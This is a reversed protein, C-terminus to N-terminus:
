QLWGAYGTETTQRRLWDAFGSAVPRRLWLERVKRMLWCSHNLCHQKAEPEVNRPAVLTTCDDGVASLQTVEVQTTM